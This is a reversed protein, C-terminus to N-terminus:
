KTPQLQNFYNMLEEYQKQTLKIKTISMEGFEFVHKKGEKYHKM